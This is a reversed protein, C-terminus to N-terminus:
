ENRVTDVPKENAAKYAQIGTTLLTLLLMFLSALVFYSPSLSIKYAFADLWNHMLFWSLPTAILFAIAIMAFFDKTLLMVIKSTKAGHIKRIGIEKRKQRTSFAVLVMLGLAAIFVAVLASGSFIYARRTDNEYFLALQDDLFHYEFIHTPDIEHLANEVGDLVSAMNQNPKIRVTYYDIAHLPNNRYTIIIPSIKEHLSRFHFDEVIGIVEVEFPSELRVIEGDYNGYILQIKQSTANKIGLLKAATENLLVATSDKSENAGFNRGLKLTIGFTNLFDKDAGILYLEHGQSEDEGPFKSLAKPLLKWEGPVRSSVSVSTVSSMQILKNKLTQFNSRLKGSNIDAVLMLEKNFGLDKKQIFQMQAYAVITAITLTISVVFQFIVLLRRLNMGKQLNRGSVKLTNTIKFRSLIVAPYIGSVVGVVMMLAIISPLMYWASFLSLSLAKNTFHNFYPLLIQVIGLALLFCIASLLIAECLFQTMINERNAGVVKRIGIEKGRSISRATSLNMYNFSAILLIIIAALSLIYAYKIDNKNFNYDNEIHGSGFHIDELAQFVIARQGEKYDSNTAALKNLEDQTARHDAKPDILLYTLFNHSDWDSSTRREFFEMNELTAMSFLADTQLHSNLPIDELVGSVILDSEMRGSELSKGVINTKGFLQLAIKKSLVISSPEKLCTKADGHLLKFDFTEFFSEDTFIMELYVKFQKENNIILSRGYGLLQVAKEVQPLQEVAQKGVQYSTKAYTIEGNQNEIKETVRYIRELKQHMHDFMLEDKVYLSILLFCVIGFTLGVINITSYAKQKLLNRYAIKFYNFLMYLRILFPQKPRKIQYPRFSMFVTFVYLMKAKFLGKSEIQEHFEEELDGEVTELFREDLFWKLLKKAFRPPHQTPEDKMRILKNVYFHKPRINNPM